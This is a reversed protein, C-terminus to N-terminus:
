PTFLSPSELGYGEEVLEKLRNTFRTAPAGDIIDHDFQVTLCLYEREELQGDIFAPRKELGGIVLGLTHNPRGIAWGGGRGFMGLATVEVTGAYKKILGPSRFIVSYILRRIFGPLRVFWQMHRWVRASHVQGPGSKASRIEEDIDEPARRNAARVPHMYPFRQGDLEVEVTVLVDVDDFIVLRNWWGKVAHVSKDEDVARALCYVMYSTLSLPKGTESRYRHIQRRTETVDAEILGSVLHRRRSLRGSDIFVRRIAPFRKVERGGGSM